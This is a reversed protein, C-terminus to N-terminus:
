SSIGLKDDTKVVQHKIKSTARDCRSLRRMNFDRCVSSRISDPFQNGSLVFNTMKLLSIYSEHNRISRNNSLKITTRKYIREFAGGKKM